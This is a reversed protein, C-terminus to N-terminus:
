WTENLAVLCPQRCSSSLQSDSVCISEVEDMHGLGLSVRVGEFDHILLVKRAFDHSVEDLVLM